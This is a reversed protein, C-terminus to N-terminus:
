QNKVSLYPSSFSLSSSVGILSADVLQRRRVGCWPHAQLWHVHGQGSDFRPGKLGCVSARDVSGCRNRGTAAEKGLAVCDRFSMERRFLLPFAPPSLHPPSALQMKQCNVPVDSCSLDPGKENFFAPQRRINTKNESMHNEYYHHHSSVRGGCGWLQYCM